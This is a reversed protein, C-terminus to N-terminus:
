TFVTKAGDLIGGQSVLQVTGTTAVIRSVSMNGTIEEM